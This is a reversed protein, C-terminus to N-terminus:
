QTSLADLVTAPDRLYKPAPASRVTTVGTCQKQNCAVTGKKTQCSWDTGFDEFTGGSEGCKKKLDDPSMTKLPVTNYKEASAAPALANQAAVLVIAAFVAAVSCARRYSM